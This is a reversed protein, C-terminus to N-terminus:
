GGLHIHNQHYARAITGVGCTQPFYVFHAPHTSIQDLISVASSIQGSQNTRLERMPTVAPAEVGSTHQQHLTHQITQLLKSYALDVLYFPTGLRYM